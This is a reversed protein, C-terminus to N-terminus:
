CFMTVPNGVTLIKLVGEKSQKSFMVMMLLNIILNASMSFEFIIVQPIVM